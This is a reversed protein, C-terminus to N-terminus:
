VLLKTQDQETNFSYNIYVSLGNSKKSLIGKRKLIYGMDQPNVKHGVFLEFDKRIEDLTLRSGDKQIIRGDEFYKDEKPMEEKLIIKTDEIGSWKTKPIKGQKQAKKYNIVINVITEIATKKNNEDEFFEDYWLGNAKSDKIKNRFILFQFRTIISNDDIKAYISPLKNTTYLFVFRTPDFNYDANDNKRETNQLEAGVLSKQNELMEETLNGIESAINMRKGIFHFTSFRSNKGLFTEPKQRSVNANGVIWVLIDALTSKQTNTEGKFVFMKKFPNIWSINIWILEIILNIDKSDIITLIHNWLKLNRSNENITFPLKSTTLYEPSHPKLEFTNPDLIGSQTNILKSELLDVMNIYTKNARITDTIESVTQKKCKYIKKHCEEKIITEALPKYIGDNKSYYWIKDNEKLTKFNYESQIIKAVLDFDDNLYPKNQDLQSSSMELPKFITIIEHRRQKCQEFAKSSKSEYDCHTCQFWKEKRKDENAVNWDKIFNLDSPKELNVAIGDKLTPFNHNTEIACKCSDPKLCEDHLDNMCSKCNILIESTM